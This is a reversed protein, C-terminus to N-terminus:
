AASAASQGAALSYRGDATRILEGMLALTELHRAVLKPDAGAFAAIVDSTGLVRTAFLGKV